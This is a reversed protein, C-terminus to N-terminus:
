LLCACLYIIIIGHLVIRMAPCEQAYKGLSSKNSKLERNEWEGCGLAGPVDLVSFIYIWGLILKVCRILRASNSLFKRNDTRRRGRRKTIAEEWLRIVRLSAVLYGMVADIGVERYM